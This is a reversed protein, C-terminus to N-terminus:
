GSGSMLSDTLLLKLRQNVEMVEDGRLGWAWRERM